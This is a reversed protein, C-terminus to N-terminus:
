EDNLIGFKLVLKQDDTIIQKRYLETVIFLLRAHHLQISNVVEVM